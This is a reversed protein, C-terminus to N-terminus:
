SIVLVYQEICDADTTKERKTELCIMFFVTKSIIEKALNVLKKYVISGIL